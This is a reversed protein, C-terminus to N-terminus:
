RPAPTSSTVDLTLPRAGLKAAADVAKGEDRAAIYLDYGAAALQRATEFGLGCGSRTRLADGSGSMLVAVAGVVAPELVSAVDLFGSGPGRGRSNRNNVELEHERRRM